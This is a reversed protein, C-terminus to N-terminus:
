NMRNWTWWKAWTWRLKTLTGKPKSM